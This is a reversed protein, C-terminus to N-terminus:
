MFIQELFIQLSWDVSYVIQPIIVYEFSYEGRLVFRCYPSSRKRYRLQNNRSFHLSLTSSFRFYMGHMFNSTFNCHRIVSVFTGEIEGSDLHVLVLWYMWSECCTKGGSNGATNNVFTSNMLTFNVSPAVFLLNGFRIDNDVPVWCVM